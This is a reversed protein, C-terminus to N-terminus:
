IHTHTNNKQSKSTEESDGIFYNRKVSNQSDIKTQSTQIFYIVQLLFLYSKTREGEEYKKRGM